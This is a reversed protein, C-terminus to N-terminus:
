SGRTGLQASRPTKWGRTTHALALTLIASFPGPESVLSQLPVPKIPRPWVDSWSHCSKQTLVQAHYNKFGGWMVAMKLILERPTHLLLDPSDSRGTIM